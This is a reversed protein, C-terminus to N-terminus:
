GVSHGGSPEGYRADTCNHLVEALANMMEYMVDVAANEEPETSWTAPSNM